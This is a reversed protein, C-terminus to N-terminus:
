HCDAQSLEVGSAVFSAETATGDPHRTLKAGEGALHDAEERSLKKVQVMGQMRAKLGRSDKPVFFGYDKFRVRMGSTDSQTRVQMWCGKNQCVTEVVGETVIASKTYAAPNELVEALPTTRADGAIKEGRIIAESALSTAAILLAAATLLTWKM